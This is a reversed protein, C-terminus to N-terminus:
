SSRRNNNGKKNNDNKQAAKLKENFIEQVSLFETMTIKNPNCSFGIGASYGIILKEINAPKEEEGEKIQKKPMKRTLVKIEHSITSIELKIRELDEFYTELSIKFGHKNMLEMAEPKKDFELVNILINIVKQKAKAQDLDKTIEFIRRESRDQEQAKDAYECWLNEWAESCKIQTTTETEKNNNKKVLLTVDKTFLIKFFIKAPITDLTKYIM